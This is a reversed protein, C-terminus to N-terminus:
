PPILNISELFSVLVEPIKAIKPSKVMIKLRLFEKAGDYQLM